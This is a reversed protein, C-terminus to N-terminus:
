GIIKVYLEKITQLAADFYHLNNLKYISLGLLFLTILQLGLLYKFTKKKVYFQKLTNHTTHKFHIKAM